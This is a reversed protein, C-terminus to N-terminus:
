KVRKIVVRTTLAVVAWVRRGLWPLGLWRRWESTSGFSSLVVVLVSFSLHRRSPPRCGTFIAVVEEQRRCRGRGVVVLLVLLLAVTAMVLLLLVEVAAVVVAVELAM